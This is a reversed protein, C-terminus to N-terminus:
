RPRHGANQLAAAMKRAHGPHARDDNTSTTILIPPYSFEASINHYPSYEKIFAWDSPDDPNGYEAVFAAGAGLPYVVNM